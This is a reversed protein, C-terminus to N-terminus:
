AYAGVLESLTERPPSPRKHVQLWIDLVFMNWVRRAQRGATLPDSVFERVGDADFLGQKVATGEPLGRILDFLAPQQVWRSLPTDFGWKPRRLIKPPCRQGLTRKLLIKFEGHSNQKLSGPVRQTFRVLRYDMFPVRVELSNAMSMRDTLALIQDPLYTHQDIFQRRSVNDTGPYKNWLTEITEEAHGKAPFGIQELSRTNFIQLRHLYSRWAATPSAALRLEEAWHFNYRDIMPALTKAAGPAHQFMKRIKGVAPDVYRSYGGFLEDGGLGSLCVKVNQAAMRSILYNPIISSDGIPEDMHWLLLPLQEIADQVSASLEHHDTGACRAVSAAYPREDFETHEFGLAFTQMPVSSFRQATITVVSSDLGGSLFSAVPVDSRMRLKVADDFEAILQSKGEASDPAAMPGTPIAALDWWAKNEVRDGQIFLYHGPLLKRVQLYPTAERPIYSLRLFDAIANLDLETSLEPQTLLAKLESGFLWRSGCRAYYLPKVGMRDRALLLSRSRKNWLAFAFMGNLKPLLAPGYEEYLHVLIETDSKSSFKHGQQILADRLEVYNFLEGNMVVALSRDENFIPQDGGALDIISLRRMGMALPGDVLFGDADPGRHSQIDVMPRLDSIRPPRQTDFIGAIGCM